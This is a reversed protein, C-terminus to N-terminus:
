DLLYTAIEAEDADLMNCPSAIVNWRKPTKFDMAQRLKSMSESVFSKPDECASIICRSPFSDEFLLTTIYSALALWVATYIWTNFEYTVLYAFFVYACVWLTTALNFRIYFWVTVSALIYAPGVRVVHLAPIVVLRPSLRVVLLGFIIFYVLTPHIKTNQIHTPVYLLALKTGRAIELATPSALVYASGAWIAYSAPVVVIVTTLVFVPIRTPDISM